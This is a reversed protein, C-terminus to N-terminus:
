YKQKSYKILWPHNKVEQITIRDKPSQKMLKGILDKVEKSFYDPYKKMKFNKINYFIEPNTKGTFPPVGSCLEYILIGLCWLDSSPIHPQENIVEPPM